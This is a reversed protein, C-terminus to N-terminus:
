EARATPLDAFEAPCGHGTMVVSASRRHSEGGEAQRPLQPWPRWRDRGSADHWRRYPSGYGYGGREGGSQQSTVSVHGEGATGCPSTMFNSPKAIRRVMKM